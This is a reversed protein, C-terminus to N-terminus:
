PCGVDRRDILMIRRLFLKQNSQPKSRGAKQGGSKLRFKRGDSRNAIEEGFQIDAKGGVDRSVPYVASISAVLLRRFPTNLLLYTDQQCSSRAEGVTEGMFDRGFSFGLHCIRQVVRSYGGAGLLKACQCADDILGGCQAVSLISSDARSCSRSYGSM